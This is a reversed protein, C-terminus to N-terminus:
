LNITEIILKQEFSKAKFLTIKKDQQKEIEQIIPKLINENEFKLGFTISEIQLGIINKEFAVDIDFTYKIKEKDGYHLLRVEKEYEWDESKVTWYEIISDFIEKENLNTNKYKVEDKGVYSPLYLFKYGICIGTHEKGYHSWMLKNDNIQSLSYLKFDSKKLKLHTFKKELTESSVDFPDNLKDPSAFYLYNESLSSLSDISFSQYKYLTQEFFITRTDKQYSNYFIYDKISKDFLTKKDEKSNTIQLLLLEAEGHLNLFYKKSLEISKNLNQIALNFNNNKLKAKLHHLKGMELYYKPNEIEKKIKNNFIIIREELSDLDEFASLYYLKREDTLTFKHEKSKCYLKKIKLIYYKHIRENYLDTKNIFENNYEINIKKIYKLMDKYPSLMEYELGFFVNNLEFDKEYLIDNYTKQMHKLTIKYYNLIFLFYIDKKLEKHHNHLKDLIGSLHNISNTYEKKITLLKAEYFIKEEKYITSKTKKLITDIEDFAKLKFLKEIIDKLYGSSFNNYNNKYCEIAKQQENQKEYCEALVLFNGSSKDDMNEYYQITEKYKKLKYCVTGYTIYKSKSKREENENFYTYLWKYDEKQTYYLIEDYETNLNYQKRLQRIDDLFEENNWFKNIFKQVIKTDLTNKNLFDFCKKFEKQIFLLYFNAELNNKNSSLALNLLTKSKDNKRFWTYHEFTRFNDELFLYLKVYTISKNNKNDKLIQNFYKNKDKQILSNSENNEHLSVWGMLDYLYYYYFQSEKNDPFNTEINKINLLVEYFNSKYLNDIVAKKFEELKTNKDM